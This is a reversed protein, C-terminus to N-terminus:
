FRFLFGNQDIQSWTPIEVILVLLEHWLVSDLNGAGPNSEVVQRRENGGFHLLSVPDELEPIFISQGPPGPPSGIVLMTRNSKCRASTSLEAM